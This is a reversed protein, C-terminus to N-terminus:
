WISPGGTPKLPKASEEEKGTERSLASMLISTLDEEAAASASSSSGAVAEGHVTRGPPGHAAAGYATAKPTFSAPGYIPTGDEDADDDDDDLDHPRTGPPEVGKLADLSLPDARSGMSVSPPLSPEKSPLTKAGEAAPLPAPGM